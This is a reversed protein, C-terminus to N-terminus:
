SALLLPADHVVGRATVNSTYVTIIKGSAGIGYILATHNVRDPHSVDQESGVNWAKWVPVLESASGILYSAEGRLGHRSMFAAVADPTDGHPDVSVAVIAVRGRLRPSMASYAAHLTSAILPCVDPCHTYLFTAFVARGHDSALDFRTGDYNHLTDLPPAALYPSLTIGDFRASHAANVDGPLAPKSAGCGLLLLAGVVATLIV